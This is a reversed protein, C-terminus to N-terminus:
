VQQRNGLNVHDKLGFGAFFLKVNKAEQDTTTWRTTFYPETSSARM